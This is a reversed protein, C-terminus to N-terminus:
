RTAAYTLGVAGIVAVIGGSIWYIIPVDEDEAAPPAESTVEACVELTDIHSARENLYKKEWHLAAEALVTQCAESPPGDCPSQASLALALIVGIM